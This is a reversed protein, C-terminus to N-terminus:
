RNPYVRLQFSQRTWAHIDGLIVLLVVRETVGFQSTQCTLQLALFLRGGVAGDILGDVTGILVDGITASAHFWPYVSSATALFGSGFSPIALNFLGM